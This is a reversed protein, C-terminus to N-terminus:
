LFIDCFYVVSQQIQIVTYPLCLKGILFIVLCLKADVPPLFASRLNCTFYCRCHCFFFNCFFTTSIYFLNSHKIVTYPLCLKGILFIVLCLKAGLPTPCLIINSSVFKGKLHIHNIQIQKLKWQQTHHAIHLAPLRTLFFRLPM